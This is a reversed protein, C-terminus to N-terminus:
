SESKFFFFRDNAGASSFRWMGTDGNTDAALADFVYVGNSLETITGSVSAFAGGDLSRQGTVTLGTKPTIDDTSDIM